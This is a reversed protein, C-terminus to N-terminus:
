FREPVKSIAPAPTADPSPEEIVEVTCGGDAANDAAADAQKKKKGGFLRNWM